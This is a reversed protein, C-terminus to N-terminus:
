IRSWDRIWGGERGKGRTPVMDNIVCYVRASQCMKAVLMDLAQLRKGDDALFVLSWYKLRLRGSGKGPNSEYLKDNRLPACRRCLKTILADPAQLRKWEDM